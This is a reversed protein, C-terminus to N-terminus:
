PAGPLIIGLREALRTQSPEERALIVLRAVIAAIMQKRVALAPDAPM